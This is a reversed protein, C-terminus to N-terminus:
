EGYVDDQLFVYGFFIILMGAAYRISTDHFKQEEQTKAPVKQREELRSPEVFGSASEGVIYRESLTHSMAVLRPYGALITSLRASPMPAALVTVLHGFVVADASSPTEGFFYPGRELRAELSIYTEEGVMYLAHDDVSSAFAAVERKRRMSPIIQSLPFNYRKGVAKKTTAYYNADDAWWEWTRAVDADEIVAQIAAIEAKQGVTLNRDINLGLKYMERILSQVGHCVVKSGNSFILEVLPMSRNPTALSVVYPVEAIRLLAHAGCCGPDISPLGWAAPEQYIRASVVVKPVVM